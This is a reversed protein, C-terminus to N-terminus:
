EGRELADLIAGIPKGGSTVDTESKEKMDHNASLILKAITSNYEGSLGANILREKQETRIKELSNSFEPYRSEWEYLTTKNVGIYRAFGEMTPLKVRLKTDFMQYGKETNEQKVVKVVEDTRSELYEDVKLIYEEKYESPRGGPHAM